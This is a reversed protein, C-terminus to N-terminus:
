SPPVPQSARQATIWDRVGLMGPHIERSEQLDIEPRNTRLWRWMRLLDKGVFREFVPVPMPFRRPARGTVERWLSRCEALSRVDAALALDRGIFETPRTFAAVAIAALDDVCVWIVPYEWGVLKPMVHWTSVSPYFGRDTMLEMFAM